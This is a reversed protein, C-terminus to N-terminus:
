HMGIKSGFSPIDKHRWDHRMQWFWFRICLYRQLGGEGVWVQHTDWWFRTWLELALVQRMIQLFGPANRQVFAFIQHLDRFCFGLTDSEPLVQHIVRFYFDPTYLIYRDLLLRIYKVWASIRHIDRLLFRTCIESCFGPTYRQAFVQHMDRLLFGTYIESCFGPTYRQAFVRHIDRLLFRTYIESCFGPTYRQAFVQHVDRFCSKSCAKTFLVQHMDRSCCWICLEPVGIPAFRRLLARSCCWTCIKSAFGPAYKRGMQNLSCAYLYKHHQYM